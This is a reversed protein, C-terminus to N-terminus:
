LSPTQIQRAHPATHHYCFLTRAEREGLGEGLEEFIEAQRGTSNASGEAGPDVQGDAQLDSEYM